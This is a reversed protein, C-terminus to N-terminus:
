GLRSCTQFLRRGSNVTQLKVINKGRRVESDDDYNLLYKDIYAEYTLSVYRILGGLCQLNNQQPGHANPGPIPSDSRQLKM